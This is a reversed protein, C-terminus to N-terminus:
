QGREQSIVTDIVFTKPKMSELGLASAWYELSKLRDGKADYLLGLNWLAPQYHPDIQLAQIFSQEAADAEGQRLYIVGSNNVVAKYLDKDDPAVLIAKKYSVMAEEINGHQQAKVGENYYVIAHESAVGAPYTVSSFTMLILFLMLSSYVRM